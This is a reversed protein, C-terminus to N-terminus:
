KLAKIDITASYIHKSLLVKHVSQMNCLKYWYRFEKMSSQSHRQCQQIVNHVSNKLLDISIIYNFYVLQQFRNNLIKLFFANNLEIPSPNNLIM